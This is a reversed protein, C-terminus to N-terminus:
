IGYDTRATDANVTKWSLTGDGAYGRARYDKVKINDADAPDSIAQCLERRLDEVTQQRPTGLAM